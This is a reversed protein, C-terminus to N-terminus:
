QDIEATQVREIPVRDGRGDAFGVADQDRVFIGETPTIAPFDCSADGILKELMEVRGNAADGRDVGINGVLRQQFVGDKWLNAVEVASDLVQRFELARNAPTVLTRMGM